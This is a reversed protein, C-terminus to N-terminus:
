TATFLPATCRRLPLTVPRLAPPRAPPRSAPHPLPHPMTKQPQISAKKVVMDFGIMQSLSRRPGVPDRSRTAEIMLEKVVQRHIGNPSCKCTLIQTQTPTSPCKFKMLELKVGCELCTSREWCLRSALDCNRARHHLIPPVFPRCHRLPFPTCKALFFHLHPPPAPPSSRALMIVRSQVVRPLM